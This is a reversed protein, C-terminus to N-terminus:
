KQTLLPEILKDFDEISRGGKLRKGNIFFTPTSNVRFLTAARERVETISKLLEDDKLCKDFTEKTFGAQKAIEFLKPLPNGESFAWNSQTKFLAELLLFSKDGAACRALMSAAGALNDLPFDRMIFRIKNTDIYKEKIKPFTEEHFKACHGCTLSAYEVVTVKADDPGLSMEPLKGPKMLEQVSVTDADKKEKTQDSKTKEPENQGCGSLVVLPAALLAMCVLASLVRSFATFM